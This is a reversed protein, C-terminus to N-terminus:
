SGYYSTTTKQLLLSYIRCYTMAEECFVKYLQLTFTKGLFFFPIFFFLIAFNSKFSFCIQNYQFSLFSLSLYCVNCVLKFKFNPIAKLQVTHPFFFFSHFSCIVSIELLYLNRKLTLCFFYRSNYLFAFLYIM